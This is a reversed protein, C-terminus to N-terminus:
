RSSRMGSRRTVLEAFRERREVGGGCGERFRIESNRRLGCEESGGLAGKAGGKFTGSGRMSRLRVEGSPVAPRLKRGASGGKSDEGAECGAGKFLSQGESTM